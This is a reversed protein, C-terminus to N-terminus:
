GIIIQHQFLSMETQNGFLSKSKPSLPAHPYPPISFKLERDSVAVKNATKNFIMFHVLITEKKKRKKLNLILKLNKIITYNVRM